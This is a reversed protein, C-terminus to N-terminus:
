LTNGKGMMGGVNQSQKLFRYCVKFSLNKRGLGAQTKCIRRISDFISKTEDNLVFFDREYAISRPISYISDAPFLSAKQVDLSFLIQELKTM